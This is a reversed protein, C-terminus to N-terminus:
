PLPSYYDEEDGVGANEGEMASLLQYLPEPLDRPVTWDLQDGVGAVDAFPKLFSFYVYAGCRIKEDRSMAAINRYHQAQATRVAALLGPIEGDPVLRLTGDDSGDTTFLGF